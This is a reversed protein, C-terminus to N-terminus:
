THTHTDACHYRKNNLQKLCCLQAILMFHIPDKQLSKGYFLALLLYFTYATFLSNLKQPGCDCAQYNLRTCFYLLLSVFCFWFSVLDYRFQRHIKQARQIIQDRFSRFLLMIWKSIKSIWSMWLCAIEICKSNTCKNLMDFLLSIALLNVSKIDEFSLWSLPFLRVAMCYQDSIKVQDFHFFSPFSLLLWVLIVNHTQSLKAAGNWNCLKIFIYFM